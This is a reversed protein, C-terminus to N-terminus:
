IFLILYISTGHTLVAHDLQVILVSRIPDLHATLGDHDHEVVGPARVASLHHWVEIRAGLHELAADEKPADVHGLIGVGEMPVADHRNWGDLEEAASPRDLLDHSLDIRRQKLLGSLAGKLM